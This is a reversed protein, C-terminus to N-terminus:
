HAHEKITAGSMVCTAGQGKTAVGKSITGRLPHVSAVEAVETAAVEAEPGPEVAMTTPPHQCTSRSM